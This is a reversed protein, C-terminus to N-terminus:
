VRVHADSRLEYQQACLQKQPVLSLRAGASSATRTPRVRQGELNEAHPLRAAASAKLPPTLAPRDSLRVQSILKQGQHQTFVPVSECVRSSGRGGISDRKLLMPSKNENKITSLISVPNGATKNLVSIKKKVGM